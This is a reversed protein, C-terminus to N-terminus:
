AARRHQNTRPVAVLDYGLAGLHDILAGASLNNRQERAALGSKTIHALRALATQSLHARHRLDRLLQGLDSSHALHIPDHTPLLRRAAADFDALQTRLDTM